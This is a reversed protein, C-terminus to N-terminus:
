AVTDVPADARRRITGAGADVTVADGTSLRRTAGAVNTVAPTGLERILISGHSLDGGIEVVVAAM